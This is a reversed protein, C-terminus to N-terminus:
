NTVRTATIHFSISAEDGASFFFITPPKIGWDTYKFTVEGEAVLKSADSTIEVSVPFSLPLSRGHLTLDGNVTASGDTDSSRTTNSLGTSEFRITPYKDADLTDSVAHDREEKNSHYSSADLILSVTGNAPNDSDFAVEGDIIKFVGEAYGGFGSAPEKVSVSVASAKPDMRYHYMMALAAGPSTAALTAILLILLRRVQIRHLM